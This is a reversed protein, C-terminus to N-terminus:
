QIQPNMEHCKRIVDLQQRVQYLKIDHERGNLLLEYIQDYYTQVAAIFPAQPDGDWSQEYWKLQEGCYAPMQEEDVEELILAIDAPEMPLFLERLAAYKKSRFLDEIQQLYLDLKEEYDRM